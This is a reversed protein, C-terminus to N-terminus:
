GPYEFFAANSEDVTPVVLARDLYENRMECSTEAILSCSHCAAGHLWREDPSSAPAHQACIPDSSCLAGMRLATTLHEEIHRAQQVLGGLTGDADPSATYLLLGYRGGDSDLYIRERISTAPYGCRLALAQMLLHALTHLLVYTGGPFEVDSKGRSELWSAHGRKLSDVRRRVGTRELWRDVAQSQLSLFIGEGRNEVAPFWSPDEDIDARTVDTDYEGDIDPVAAEFRTFGVLASVERLRHLQVVADIGDSVSTSKWLSAPLYTAHFDPDMGVDDGFGERAALFADIELHKARRDEVGGSRKAAITKLIVQDDHKARLAAVSPIAAFALLREQGDVVQLVDWGMDVDKRVAKDGDPISLVRIVQSFYANTATRTLLRSMQDCDESAHRGLWPRRGRCPGLPNQNWDGADSLRRWAGCGCRVTLDALDGSQGLEDLWLPQACQVHGRHVFSRWDLDDVHGKPCARVFRTAVVRKGGFRDRRAGELERFHVLRRSVAEGGSGDSWGGREASQVVFWEPFRRVGIHSQGSHSAPGLLGSDTPPSFLSPHPVGTMRRIKDALRPEVIRREQDSRWNWTALGAVIVSHMPLDVLSGPGYTTIIQSARISGISINQKGKSM